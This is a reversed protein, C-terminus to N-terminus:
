PAGEPKSSVFSRELEMLGKSSVRYRGREARGILGQRQLQVLVNRITKEARGVGTAIEEISLSDEKRKGMKNALQAM